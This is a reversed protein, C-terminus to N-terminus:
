RIQALAARVAHMTVARTPRSTIWRVMRRGQSLREWSSQLAWAQTKVNHERSAVHAAGPKVRSATYELFEGLSQSWEIGPFASVWPYSYSVDYLVRGTAIRKLLYPCEKALATLVGVPIAAPYYRSVLKLPPFAWWLRQGGSNKALVEQWDLETMASSLRALDHLHMLRLARTTMSGAAHLLLHLMLSAKSPYPNLGPQPQRPFILESADTVRWPLKECIRGHLEIKISNNAHEGLDAPGHDEKPSFVREKWSVSSEQFGLSELIAATRETQAPRVLLDIDAMPREGALYLGMAHLAAGKLAVVAIGAVQTQRDIRRLLDAIREYRKATHVAQEEVFHRWGEPGSWPLTRSLLASVGHMAAVARAITWEFESWDPVAPPPNALAAAFSETIKRLTRQLVRPPVACPPNNM